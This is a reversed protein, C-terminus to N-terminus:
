TWRHFEIFLHKCIVTKSHRSNWPAVVGKEKKERQGIMAIEDADDCLRETALLPGCYKSFRIYLPFSCSAKRSFICHVRYSGKSMSPIADVLVVVVVVREVANEEKRKIRM